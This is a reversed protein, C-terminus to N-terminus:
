RYNQGILGFVAATTFLKANSAPTFLKDSNLAILVHGTDLSLAYIGWFGRAADPEQLMAEVDRTLKEASQPKKKAASAPVLLALWVLTVAFYRVRFMASSEFELM